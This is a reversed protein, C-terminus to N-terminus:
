EGPGKLDQSDFSHLPFEFGSAFQYDMSPENFMLSQILDPNTAFTALEQSPDAGIGEFTMPDLAGLGGFDFAGMDFMSGDAWGMSEPHQEKSSYATEGPVKQENALKRRTDINAQLKIQAERALKHTQSCEELVKLIFSLRQDRESGVISFDQTFLIGSGAMVASYVILAPSHGLGQQTRFQRILAIISNTSTICTEKSAAKAPFGPTPRIFHRNLSILISHYFLSNPDLTLKFINLLKLAETLVFQLILVHPKLTGPTPNWQNWSLHKQLSSHWRGLQVSLEELRSSRGLILDRQPKKVMKTSFIKLIMEETLKSLEILGEFAPMLITGSIHGLDSETL